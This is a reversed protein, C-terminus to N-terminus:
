RHFLACPLLARVARESPVLTSPGGAVTDAGLSVAWASARHSGAVTRLSM